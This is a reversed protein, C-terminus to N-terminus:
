DDETMRWETGDASIWFNIRRIANVERLTGENDRYQITDGEELVNMSDGIIAGGDICARCYGDQFV